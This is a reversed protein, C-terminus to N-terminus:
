TCSVGEAKVGIRSPNWCGMYFKFYKNGHETHFFHYLGRRKNWILSHKKATESCLAHDKKWKKKEQDFHNIKKQFHKADCWRLSM